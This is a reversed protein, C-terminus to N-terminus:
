VVPEMTRPMIERGIEIPTIPPGLSSIARVSFAAAIMMVGFVGFAPLYASARGASTGMADTWWGAIVPGTSGMTGAITLWLGIVRGRVRPSVRELVAADAVAYTALQCAQFALLVVLLWRVPWLPVTALVVGAGVRLVGLSRL